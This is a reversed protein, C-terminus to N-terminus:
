INNFYYNLNFVEFNNIKYIIKAWNKKCNLNEIIFMIKTM